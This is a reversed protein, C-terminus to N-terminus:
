DPVFGLVGAQRSGTQSDIRFLGAGDHSLFVVRDAVSRAGIRGVPLGDAVGFRGIVPDDSDAAAPELRLVGANVTGMWLQGRADEVISRVKERVGGIREADTWRGAHLRTRALGDNLGLYLLTPDRRSRFVEFVKGDGLPLILQQADLNDLGAVSAALLGQPTSLLSWCGRSFGPYPMFRPAAGDAAPELRYIGLSTAAYLRGQHRAVDQVNGRLGLTRDYYSVSAGAEVRALGNNLGLWLGGQRDVYTYKVSENRLGSAENLIRQLRGTEDLLVVGGRRTGIALLGKPLITAHYPQLPALLDTLGPKFPTCAAETRRRAACRFMGRSRTIVLYAAENWPVLGYIRRDQFSVGGPAMALSDDDMRMLGIDKQQVYLTDRLAFIQFFRTEPRWVKMKRGDWRFLRENSRFYLGDSTKEIRWIEAFARDDPPVHDLLSVYRMRGLADPRRRGQPAVAALYGLEGQAGVYVRGETDIALSRA